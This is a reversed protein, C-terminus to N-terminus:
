NLIWAARACTALIAERSYHSLTKEEHKFANAILEKSINVIIMLLHTILLNMEANQAFHFSKISDITVLKKTIM